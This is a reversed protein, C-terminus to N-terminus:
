KFLILIVPPFDMIFIMRFSREPIMQSAMMGILIYWYMMDGTNGVEQLCTGVQEWYAM